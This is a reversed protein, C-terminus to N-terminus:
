LRVEFEVVARAIADADDDTATSSAGGADGAGSSCGGGTASSAEASVASAMADMAVGSNRLILCSIEIKMCNAGFGGCRASRSARFVYSAFASRGFPVYEAYSRARSAHSAHLNAMTIPVALCRAHAHAHTPANVFMLAMTPRHTAHRVNSSFPTPHPIRGTPSASAADSSMAPTHPHTSLAAPAPGPALALSASARRSTPNPTICTNSLAHALGCAPNITRPSASICAVRM